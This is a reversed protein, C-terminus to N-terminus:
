SNNQTKEIHERIIEIMKELNKIPFQHDFHEVFVLDGNVDCITCNYGEDDPQNIIYYNYLKGNHKATYTLVDTHIPNM